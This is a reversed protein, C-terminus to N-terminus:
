GVWSRIYVQVGVKGLLHRRRSWEAFSGPGDTSCHKLGSLYRKVGREGRGVGSVKGFSWGQKSCLICYEMFFRSIHEGDDEKQEPMYINYVAGAVGDLGVMDTCSPSFAAM